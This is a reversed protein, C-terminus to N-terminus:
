PVQSTCNLLWCGIIWTSGIIQLGLGLGLFFLIKTSVLSSLEVTTKASDLYGNALEVDGKKVAERSRKRDGIADYASWLVKAAPIAAIIVGASVILTPYDTV